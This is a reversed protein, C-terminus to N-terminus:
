EKSIMRSLIPKIRLAIIKSIIKYVCNCFSIPRFEHFTLPKDVKFFLALFTSNFFESMRCSLQCEEIALLLDQGILEFFFNYFEMPWGDPGRSKDKSFCKMTAELEGLTVPHNLTEEEEEEVFRPM